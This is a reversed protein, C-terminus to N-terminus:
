KVTYCYVSITLRDAKDRYVNEAEYTDGGNVIFQCKQPEFPLPAHAALKLVYGAVSTTTSGIEPTGPIRIVAQVSGKVFVGSHPFEEIDTGYGDDREVMPNIEINDVLMAETMDQLMAIAAPSFPTIM